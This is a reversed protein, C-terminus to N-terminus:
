DLEGRFVDHCGKCSEQLKTFQENITNVQGQQATQRMKNAQAEFRRFAAEFDMRQSWIEPKAHSEADETVGSAADDSSFWDLLQELWGKSPPPESGPPFWDLIYAGRDQILNASDQILGLDPQKLKLQDKIHKSATGMERFNAIRNQIVQQAEQQATAIWACGMGIFLVGLKVWFRENGVSREHVM